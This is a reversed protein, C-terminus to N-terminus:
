AASRLPPMVALEAYVGEITDADVRRRQKGAAAVLALHALMNVHRPAGESLAHLRDLAGAEFTPENRGARRLAEGTYRDITDRSWRHLDLRLDVHQLLEDPLCLHENRCALVALCGAAEGGPSFLLWHVWRLTDAAAQQAHDLLLVAPRAARGYAALADTLGHVIQRTPAAASPNLGLAASLEWALQRSDASALHVHAASTAQRRLRRAFTRLLLTKGCGAPGLLLALRRRSQVLYNLRALAEHRDPTEYFPCAAHLFPDERLGWYQLYM